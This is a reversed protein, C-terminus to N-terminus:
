FAPLQSLVGLKQNPLDPHLVQALDWPISISSPQSGGKSFRQQTSLPHSFQSLVLWVLSAAASLPWGSSSEPSFGWLEAAQVSPQFLHTSM